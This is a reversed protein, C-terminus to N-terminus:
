PRAAGKAVERAAPPGAVIRQPDTKEASRSVHRNEACWM